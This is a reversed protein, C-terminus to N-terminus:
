AAGEPNQWPWRTMTGPEPVAFGPPPPGPPPPLGPPTDGAAGGAPPVPPVAELGAARRPGAGPLRMVERTDLWVGADIEALLDRLAAVCM